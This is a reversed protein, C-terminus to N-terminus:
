TFGIRARQNERFLVERELEAIISDMVNTYGMFSCHSCRQRVLHLDGLFLSPLMEIRHRYSSGISQDNLLDTFYSSVVGFRRDPPIGGFKVKLFLRRYFARDLSDVLNTCGVLVGTFCDMQQLLESTFAKEWTYVAMERDFALADLEDLLLISGQQAAKRFARAVNKETKVLSL